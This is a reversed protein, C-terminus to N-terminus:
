KGLRGAATLKYGWDVNTAEWSVKGAKVLRRLIRSGAAGAGQATFKGEPWIAYGIQSAKFLNSPKSRSMYELARHECVDIPVREGVRRM